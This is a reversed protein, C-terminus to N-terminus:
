RVTATEITQLSRVYRHTRDRHHGFPLVHHVESHGIVVQHAEGNEHALGLEVVGQDLEEADQIFPDPSADDAGEEDEADKDADEVPLLAKKNEDSIFIEAVGGDDKISMIAVEDEHKLPKVALEGADEVPLLEM